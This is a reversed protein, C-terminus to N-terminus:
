LLLVRRRIVPLVSNRDVSGGQGHGVGGGARARDPRGGAWGAFGANIWADFNRRGIETYIAPPWTVLIPNMNYKFKLVHAAM